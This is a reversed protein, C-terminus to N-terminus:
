TTDPPVGMWDDLDVREIRGQRAGGQGLGMGTGGAGAGSVQKLRPGCEDKAARSNGFELGNAPASAGSPRRRSKRLDARTTM